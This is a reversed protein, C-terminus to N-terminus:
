GQAITAPGALEVEVLDDQAGATTLLLGVVQANTGGGAAWTDVRGTGAVSMLRIGPTALAAHARCKAVGRIQIDGFYGTLITQDMTVGYLADTTAAPLIIQDETTDLKVVTNALITVGSSNRKSRIEPTIRTTEGAM